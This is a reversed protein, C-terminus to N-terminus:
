FVVNSNWPKGVRLCANPMTTLFGNPDTSPCVLPQAEAQTSADMHMPTQAGAAGNKMRSGPLVGPLLPPYDLAEPRQMWASDPSAGPEQGLQPLESWRHTLWSAFSREKEREQGKRVIGKLCIFLIKVDVVVFGQWQHM